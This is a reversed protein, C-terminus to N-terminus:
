RDPAWYEGVNGANEDRIRKLEKSAVYPLVCVAGRIAEKANCRIGLLYHDGSIFGKWWPTFGERRAKVLPRIVTIRM